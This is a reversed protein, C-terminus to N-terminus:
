KFETSKKEHNNKFTNLIKFKSKGFTSVLNL